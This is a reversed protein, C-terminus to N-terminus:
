PGALVGSGKVEDGAGARTGDEGRERGAGLRDARAFDEVEIIAEPRGDERAEEGGGARDKRWLVTRARETIGELGGDALGPVERLGGGAKEDRADIGVPRLSDKDLRPRTSACGAERPPRRRWRWRGSTRERRRGAPSPDTKPHRCGYWCGRPRPARQPRAARAPSFIWTRCRPVPLCASGAGSGSPPRARQAGM